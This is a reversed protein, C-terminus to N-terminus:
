FIFALRFVDFEPSLIVYLLHTLGMRSVLMMGCELDPTALITFVLRHTLFLFANLQYVVTLLIQRLFLVFVKPISKWAM